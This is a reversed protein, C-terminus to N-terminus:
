NFFEKINNLQETTFEPYNLKFKIILHGRKKTDCKFLGKSKFIIEDNDKIKNNNIIIDSNDLYKIKTNIGTLCQYFNVPYIYMIDYLKYKKFDSHTDIVDIDIIIDGAYIHGEYLDGEYKFIHEKKWLPIDLTIKSYDYKMTEKNFRIRKVSIQKIKKNYVDEINAKITHKINKNKNIIDQKKILKNKFIILKDIIENSVKSKLNDFITENWKGDSINDLFDILLKIIPENIICGDSFIIDYINNNLKGYNEFALIINKLIESYNSDYSENNQLLSDDYKQKEIPNSLIEYASKIQIFTKNETNNETKNKDPHYKIVLQKYSKKIVDQTANNSIELIEYYNKVPNRSINM